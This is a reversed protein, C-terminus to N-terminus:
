ILFSWLFKSCPHILSLCIYRFCSSSGFVLDLVEPTSWLWLDTSLHCTHEKCRRFWSLSGFNRDHNYWVGFVMDLDLNLHWVGTLFRWCGRCGWILVLLVYTNKRGEFDLYLWFKSCPHILSWHGYIFWSWSELGWDPIELMGWLESSCCPHEKYRWFWSLSGLNQVHSYRLGTVM